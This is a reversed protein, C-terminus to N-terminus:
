EIPEQLHLVFYKGAHDVARQMLGAQILGVLIPDLQMLAEIERDELPDTTSKSVLGPVNIKKIRQIWMEKETGM